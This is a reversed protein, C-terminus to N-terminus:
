SRFTELKNNLEDTMTNLHEAAAAIEEVSRANTSSINNIQEVKDVILVVNKGTKEFDVVTRDSASVAENVIDVTENIRDEVGQAINTLSQIEQANISMKTSADGISQVVVSITANIESLTKQTREALKRVEDAVVAFGRGHEGARAAEIAANLALLNTQDAIDSIVVLVTKVEEADHSLTEMSHALEEEAEATEQVKSTLTIVEDRATELNTNAKVIDEKSEQADSIASSIEGQVDRAQSTAEEVISVSSEVNNGVSLATTSLEHSIAVNESSSNKTNDILSRLSEVFENFDKAMMGMEDNSSADLKKTLDQNQSVYHIHNHMRVLAKEFVRTLLFGSINMFLILFIISIVLGTIVTHEHELATHTSKELLHEMISAIHIIEKEMNHLLPETKELHLAIDTHNSNTLSHELEKVLVKYKDQEEKLHKFITFMENYKAKVDPEHSHEIASKLTKFVKQLKKDTDKEVEALHHQVDKFAKSHIDDAHLLLQYTLIEEMLIDKELEMVLSNLPVQYESIEELEGGISDLNTYIMTSQVIVAMIIVFFTMQIKTILKM